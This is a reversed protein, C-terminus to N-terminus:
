RMLQKGLSSDDEPDPISEDQQRHLEALAAAHQEKATRARMRNEAPSTVHAICLGYMAARHQEPTMM